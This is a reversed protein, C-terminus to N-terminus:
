VYKSPTDLYCASEDMNLIQAASFNNEDISDSVIKFFDFVTDLYDRPFDRGSTTVRRLVLNKRDCFKQRWGVSALFMERRKDCLPLELEFEPHIQEYIQVARRQLASGSLCIGNTRKENVWTLLRNEMAPCLSQDCSSKVKLYITHYFKLTAM